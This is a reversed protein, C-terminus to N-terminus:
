SNDWEKLKFIIDKAETLEKFKEEDGGKNRPMDPHIPKIMAKYAARVVEKPASPLLHLKVFHSAGSEREEAIMGNLINQMEAFDTAGIGKKRGRLEPPRCCNVQWGASTLRQLLASKLVPSFMWYLGEPVYRRQQMPLRQVFVTWYPDQNFPPKVCIWPAAQPPLHPAKDEWFYSHALNM